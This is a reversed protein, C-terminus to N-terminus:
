DVVCIAQPIKTNKMGINGEFKCYGIQLRRSKGALVPVRGM